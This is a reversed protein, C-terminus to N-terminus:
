MIEVSSTRLGMGHSSWDMAFGEALHGSFTFMPSANKQEQRLFQQMMAANEVAGLQTTLDWLHVSNRESWSAAIRKNGIQTSQWSITIVYLVM